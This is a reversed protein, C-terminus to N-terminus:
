KFAGRPALIQASRLCFSEARLECSSRRSACVHTCRSSWCQEGTRMHQYMFVLRSVCNRVRPIRNKLYDLTSAALWGALWGALLCAALCALLRAAMSTAGLTRRTQFSRLLSHIGRTDV